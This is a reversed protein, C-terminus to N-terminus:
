SSPGLSAASAPGAGNRSLADADAVYLYASASDLGPDHALHISLGDRNAFGYDAGDEDAVTTFGLLAYHASAAAVDWVPFIPSFQQVDGVRSIQASRSTVLGQEVPVPM